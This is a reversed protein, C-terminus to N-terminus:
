CLYLYIIVSCGNNDHNLQRMLTKLEVFSILGPVNLLIAWSNFDLERQKRFM